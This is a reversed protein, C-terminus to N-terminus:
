DKLTYCVFLQHGMHCSSLIAPVKLGAVQACPLLVIFGYDPCLVSVNVVCFSNGDLHSEGQGFVSTTQRVM